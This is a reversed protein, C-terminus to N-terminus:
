EYSPHNLIRIKRKIKTSDENAPDALVSLERIAGDQLSLQVEKEMLDELGIPAAIGSRKKTWDRNLRTYKGQEGREMVSTNFPSLFSLFPNSDNKKFNKNIQQFCEYCDAYTPQVAKTGKLRSQTSFVVKACLCSITYTCSKHARPSKHAHHVDKARLRSIAYTITRSQAYLSKHARLSKHTRLVAKSM